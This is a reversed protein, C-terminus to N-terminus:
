VNTWPLRVIVGEGQGEHWVLPDIEGGIEYLFELDAANHAAKLADVLGQWLAPTLHLGPVTLKIEFHTSTHALAIVVRQWLTRYLASIVLCLLHQTYVPHYAVPPWRSCEITPPPSKAVQPSMLTLMVTVVALPSVAQLSTEPSFWPLRQSNNQIMEYASRMEDSLANIVPILPDAAGGREDTLLLLVDFASAIGNLWSICTHFVDSTNVWTWVSEDPVLYQAWEAVQTLNNDIFDLCQQDVDDTQPYIQVLHRFQDQVRGLTQQFPV